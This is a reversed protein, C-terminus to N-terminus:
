AQRALQFRAMVAFHDSPFQGNIRRDLALDAEVLGMEHGAGPRYWLHDIRLRVRRHVLPNVQYDATYMTDSADGHIERITDRFGRSALDDFLPMLRGAEVPALNFDGCIIAPTDGGPLAEVMARHQRRRGHSLGLGLHATCVRVPRGAVELHAILVGRRALIEKPRGTWPLPRFECQKVPYRTFIWLGSGM